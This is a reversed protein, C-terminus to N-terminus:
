KERYVSITAYYGTTEGPELMSSITVTAAYWAGGYYVGGIATATGNAIEVLQSVGMILIYSGNILFSINSQNIAKHDYYVGKLLKIQARSHYNQVGNQVGNNLDLEIILDEEVEYTNTSVLSVLSLFEAKTIQTWKKGANQLAAYIGGSTVPNNSGSTPTTDFTLKNQKNSFIVYDSSSLM